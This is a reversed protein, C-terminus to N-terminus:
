CEDKAGPNQELKRLRRTQRGTRYQYFWPLYRLLALNVDVGKCVAERFDLFQINNNFMSDFEGQCPVLAKEDEWRKRGDLAQYVCVMGGELYSVCCLVSKIKRFFEGFKVKTDERAPFWCWQGQFIVQGDGDAQFNARSDPDTYFPARM